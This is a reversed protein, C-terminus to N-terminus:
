KKKRLTTRLKVMFYTFYIRPLLRLKQTLSDVEKIIEINEKLGKARFKNSAGHTDFKAITIPVYEFVGGALGILKFSKFDASLKYRTDFPTRKLWESRTFACQHCFNMRHSNGPQHAKVVVDQGGISKCCDGYVVDADIHEKDFVRSLVGNDIFYDGANLFIIWEGTAKAIGKNMADYIGNDHESAWYSIKEKHQKILDLSGDTSGGDIVIYEINEYEQNFISNMTVKLLDIVNLCVTVVTVKPHRKIDM